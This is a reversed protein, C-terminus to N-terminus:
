AYGVVVTKKKKAIVDSTSQTNLLLIQVSSIKATNVLTQVDNVM